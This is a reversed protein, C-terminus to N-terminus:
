SKHFTAQNEPPKPLQCAEKITETAAATLHRPGSSTALAGRFLADTYSFACDLIAQEVAVLPLPPQKGPVCDLLTNKVRERQNADVSIAEDYASTLCNDQAVLLTRLGGQIEDKLFGFDDDTFMERIRFFNSQLTANYRLEVEDYDRKRQKIEDVSATRDFSSRLFTGRARREYILDTLTRVSDIARQRNTLEIERVRSLDDLLKSFVTALVGMLMFSVLTIGLPSKIAALVRKRWTRGPVSALEQM